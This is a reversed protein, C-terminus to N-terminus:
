KEAAEFTAILPRHDSAVGWNPLALVYTDEPNWERAMGPSLLLYDLRSYTDEVAYYHTWAINRIINARKPDSIATDGNKEAPRTDILKTKGHGILHKTSPTDQTDNFDGLVVLNINPNAALLADVKERLLKAEELRLESENALPIPRKSKLHATILTFSYDPSVKIEVEGFGRSVRFRRGDLLFNDNTHPTVRSFPFRSLVAVHVNTDFGRVHEFYPLDLGDKKLSSQLEQLASPEGVEQLALVDPKMALITERVKAKAEPSKPTRRDAPKDLYNELNYTGVRFREAHALEPLLSLFLFLPLLRMTLVM